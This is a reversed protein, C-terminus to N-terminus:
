EKKPDAKRYERPSMGTWRRFATSFVSAEQYGCERGIAAITLGSAILLEKARKQRLEQLLAGPSKGHEALMAMEFSRRSMGALRALEGASMSTGPNSRLYALARTVGSTSRLSSEREHLKPIVQISLTTTASKGSILDAMMAGAKLGIEGLSLDFSSLAIGAQLSEMRSNGVGILALDQPIRLGIERASLAALHALRDTACLLGIPHSLSHLFTKLTPISFENCIAVTHGRLKCNEAFAEGLRASGAPGSAGLYAFSKVRNELFTRSSEKGIVKLDSSVLPINDGAHHGLQVVPIGQDTLSKLWLPSMFEGITGALKGQDALKRLSAEYGGSLLLVEFHDGLSLLSKRVGQVLEIEGESLLPLAVVILTARTSALPNRM